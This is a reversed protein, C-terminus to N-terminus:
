DQPVGSEAATDAASPDYEGARLLIRLLARAAAGNLKPPKDPVVVTVTQNDPDAVSKAGWPPRSEVRRRRGPASAIPVVQDGPEPNSM